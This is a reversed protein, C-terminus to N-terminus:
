SYYTCYKELADYVARINEIPTPPIPYYVMSLGGEPSGLKMVAESILDDIDKPSGTVTVNQRGIDLDIAVRGKVHRAIDDAQLAFESVEAQGHRVPVDWPPTAIM